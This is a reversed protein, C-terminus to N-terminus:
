AAGMEPVISPSRTLKAKDHADFGGGRGIHWPPNDVMQKLESACSAAASPEGVLYGRGWVTRVFDDVGAAALKKRLKCVFVDIIKSDQPEDQPHYLQSLFMEKTTTMGKRLMMQELMAYERGTLHVATGNASVTRASLNMTVAGVTLISSPSGASRRILAHLRAVVEDGSVDHSIVDDAGVSLLKITELTDFNGQVIIPTAIKDRRLDRIMVAPEPLVILAADFPLTQLYVETELADTTGEVIFNEFELKTCLTQDADALMIRM